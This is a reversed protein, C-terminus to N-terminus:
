ERFIITGLRLKRPISNRSPFENFNCLKKCEVKSSISITEQYYYDNSRLVIYYCSKGGM